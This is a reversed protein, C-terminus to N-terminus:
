KVLPILPLAESQLAASVCSGQLTTMGEGGANNVVPRRISKM